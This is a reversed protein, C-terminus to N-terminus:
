LSTKTDDHAAPLTIEFTTGTGQKSEVLMSGHHAEVIQKVVALGIGTGGDNQRTTFYSDFIK